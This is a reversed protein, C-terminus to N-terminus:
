KEELVGKHHQCCKSVELVRKGSIQEKPLQSLYEVLDISCEWTKFGGEYVGRVLDSNSNLNLMEVVKGEENDM